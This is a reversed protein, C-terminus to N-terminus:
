SCMDLNVVPEEIAASPTNNRDHEFQRAEAVEGALNDSLRQIRDFERKHTKLEESLKKNCDIQKQHKERLKEFQMQWTDARKELRGM